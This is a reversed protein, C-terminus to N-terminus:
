RSHPVTQRTGQLLVYRPPRGPTGYVSIQQAQDNLATLLLPTHQHYGRPSTSFTASENLGSREVRQRKTPPGSDAQVHIDPSSTPEEKEIPSVTQEDDQEHRLQKELGDVRKVLAELVDTKPGRKKPIADAEGRLIEVSPAMSCPVSWIHLSVSLRQLSRMNTQSSQVQDTEM